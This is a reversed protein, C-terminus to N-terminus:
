THRRQYVKVGATAALLAAGPPLAWVPWPHVGRDFVLTAIVWAVLVAASAAGWAIWLLVM